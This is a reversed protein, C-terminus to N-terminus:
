SGAFRASLAQLEAESLGSRRVDYFESRAVDMERRIKALDLDAQTSESEGKVQDIIESRGAGCGVMATFLLLESVYAVTRSRAKMAGDGALDTELITTKQFRQPLEALASAQDHVTLSTYVNMARDIISNRALSQANKPLM